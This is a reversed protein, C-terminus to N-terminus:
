WEFEGYTLTFYLPTVNFTSIGRWMYESMGDNM